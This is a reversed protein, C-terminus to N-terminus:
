RKLPNLKDTLYAVGIVGLCTLMAARPGGLGLSM